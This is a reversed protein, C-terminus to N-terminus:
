FRWSKLFSSNITNSRCFCQCITANFGIIDTITSVYVSNCVRVRDLREQGTTSQSNTKPRKPGPQIRLSIPSSDLSTARERRRIPTLPPAAEARLNSSVAVSNNDNRLAGPNSTLDRSGSSRSGPRSVTFTQSHQSERVRSSASALGLLTTLNNSPM